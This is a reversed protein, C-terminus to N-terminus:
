KQKKPLQTLLKQIKVTNDCTPLKANLHAAAMNLLKFFRPSLMRTGTRVLCSNSKEFARGVNHKTYAFFIHKGNQYLDICGERDMWFEDAISWIPAGHPADICLVLHGYLSDSTEIRYSTSYKDSTNQIGIYKNTLIASTIDYVQKISLKM